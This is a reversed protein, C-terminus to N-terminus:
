DVTQFFISPVVSNTVAIWCWPDIEITPVVTGISVTNTGLSVGTVTGGYIIARHRWGYTNTLFYTGTTVTPVQSPISVRRPWTRKYGTGIWHSLLKATNTSFHLTDPSYYTGGQSFDYDSVIKGMEIVENFM